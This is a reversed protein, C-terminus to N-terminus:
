IYFYLQSFFLEVLRAQFVSFLALGVRGPGLSKSPDTEQNELIVAAVATFFIAIAGIFENYNTYWRCV